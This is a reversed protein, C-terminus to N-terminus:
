LDLRWFGPGEEATIPDTGGRCGAAVEVPYGAWGWELDANRLRRLIQRQATATIAVRVDQKAPKTTM